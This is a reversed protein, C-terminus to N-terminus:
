RSNEIFVYPRIKSLKKDGIGKIKLLEDITTFNGNTKRYDVIKQATKPGIGPLSCLSEASASNIDITKKQLTSKKIKQKTRLNTDKIIKVTDRLVTKKNKGLTDASRARFISDSVTYDFYAPNPQHTIGLEIIVSILLVSSLTILALKETKTFAFM